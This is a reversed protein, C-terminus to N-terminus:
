AGDGDALDVDRGDALVLDIGLHADGPSWAFRVLSAARGVVPRGADGGLIAGPNLTAMRLALDMGVVGATVAVGDALSRAAGALYPTGRLGLRGVPSLEVEGGISQRYVGPPMGGLATVDSVLVAREPGKARIMAKLTDVPLHHGDGIFTAILRDDALQTWIINPHRPLMAAIGNGLHTSLTAGAAVAGLIEDRTADTHGIAVRIGRAALASVYAASEPWHPSLTVMRVRGDAAAQLRDFLAIDPPRVDALPHAGRPGDNPSVHPGEVHIGAVAAAVRPDNACAVAIARVAATMREEPATIVTPLLTTTGTRALAAVMASVTEATLGTANLDHGRWGNVQLDVFGPALWRTEGPDGPLVARVVGDELDLAVNRGAIRRLAV